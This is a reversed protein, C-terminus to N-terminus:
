QRFRNIAREASIRVEAVEDTLLKDLMSLMLEKEGHWGWDAKPSFV